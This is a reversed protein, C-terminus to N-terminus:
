RRPVKSFRSFSHFMWLDLLTLWRRDQRDQRDRKCAGDNTCAIAGVNMVWIVMNCIVPSSGPYTSKPVQVRFSDPHLTDLKGNELTIRCASLCAPQNDSQLQCKTLPSMGAYSFRLDCVWGFVPYVPELGLSGTRPTRKKLEFRCSRNPRAEVSCVCKTFSGTSAGTFKRWPDSYLPEKSGLDSRFRFRFSM